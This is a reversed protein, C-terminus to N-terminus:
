AAPRRSAQETAAPLAALVAAAVGPLNHFGSPYSLRLLPAHRVMQAMRSMRVPQLGVAQVLRATFSYRVIEILGDRSSIPAIGIESGPADPPRREPIVLCALPQPGPAFAGWGGSGIAVRRKEVSPHVRPLCTHDGLFFDAEDPWMRMLPYGPYATWVDNVLALPLIDDSLLPCGAQVLAAALGSKGNGSNSLFAVAGQPTVVASAHLALTGRRELWYALVSALLNAEVAQFDQELPCCLIRDDFLFYDAVQVCHIVECGPAPYVRWLSEGDPTQVLSIYLPPSSLWGPPVPPPDVLSFVLDPSGSGPALNYTFPFDSLLTLGFVSYLSMLFVAAAL